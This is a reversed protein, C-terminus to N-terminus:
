SRRPVKGGTALLFASSDAEVGAAASWNLRITVTDGVLPANAGQLLEM